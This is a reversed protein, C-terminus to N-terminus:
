RFPWKGQKRRGGLWRGFARIVVIVVIALPIGFYWSHLGFLHGLGKSLLAILAILGILFALEFINM